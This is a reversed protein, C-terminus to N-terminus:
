TIYVQHLASRINAHYHIVTNAKVKWENLAYNYFEQIHHPKLEQLTIGKESFYPAIRKKVANTYSIYTILETSPKVTELWELMYDAFLTQDVDSGKLEKKEENINM